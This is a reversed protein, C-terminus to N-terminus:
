LNKHTKEIDSFSLVQIHKLEIKCLIKTNFISKILTNLDINKSIKKNKLFIKFLLNRLYFEKHTVTYFASRLKTGYNFKFKFCKKLM